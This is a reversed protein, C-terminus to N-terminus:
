VHVHMYAEMSTRVFNSYRHVNIYICLYSHYIYMYYDVYCMSLLLFLFLLIDIDSAQAACTGAILFRSSILIGMGDAVGGSRAGCWSGVWAGWCWGVWVMGGLICCCM